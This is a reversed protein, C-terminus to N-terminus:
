EKKEGFDGAMCIFLRDPQIHKRLAQNVDDVTLSRVRDEFDATFQMTRGTRLHTGMLSALAADSARGLEQNQLLGKRQENLEDETIGDKLLRDLEERIVSHVKDTNLPNTIAYIYFISRDDVPSAQYASQITYSLGETQRVRNGLRSSLAGGGLIYNGVILAPYDPSTDRLPLTMAAFYTAQAKDPTNIKEMAGQVNNVSVKPIHEFAVDSTWDATLDGLVPTLEAPDFDGVVSIEGHTGSLMESYLTKIQDINVGRIRDIEETLSAMYRPDNPPYEAIKRQVSNSANSTPDSLNQEASALQQEKLLDLEDAPFSPKRLVEQILKVVPILNGRLTKVTVTVSGPDSSVRREARYKDFADQIQQRDMSETGRFLMAGLYEAAVAKGTLAELNGFRLTIAPQRNRRIDKEAAFCGQHRVAAESHAIRSEIAQSCYRLSRGSRDARTRSLRRDHRGHPTTPVTARSPEKTPEFLGATRNSSVLYTEAVRQVDAVTVAELRDRYLFSLRWDGQAAWEGLEIAIGRSDAVKLERAKMLKQRAREVEESFPKETSSEVVDIMNQLLGPGDIGQAAEAFFMCIGPDHLAFTIGAVSAAQRKKVLQDYLRGSPEGSIVKALVDVAVYDPHAGSPIHYTLGAMPVEGVRTVRVMRDGDQAPEETWTTNLVRDPRPLSGFYKAALKLATEPEFKGAVVLMANDPQYFRQYFEKLNAVPVREIDARNGITSKGYNHWEYATATMRQMLIRFPDNEGREFENHVM